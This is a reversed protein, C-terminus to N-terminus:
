IAEISVNKGQQNIKVNQNVKFGKDASAPLSFTAGNALQVVLSVGDPKKKLALIKGYMVNIPEAQVAPAVSSTAPQNPNVVNQIAKGFSTSLKDTTTQVSACGTLSLLLISLTITKKM